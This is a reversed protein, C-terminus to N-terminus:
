ELDKAWNDDNEYEAVESLTMKACQMIQQAGSRSHCRDVEAPRDAGGIEATMPRRPVKLLVPAENM